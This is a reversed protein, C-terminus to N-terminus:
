VHQGVMLRLDWLPQLLQGIAREEAAGIPGGAVILLDLDSNLCLSRRGYGGIAGIAIPTPVDRLVQGAIARLVDDMQGAYRALVARGARGQRAEAAYAERAAGLRATLVARLDGAGRADAAPPEPPPAGTRITTM